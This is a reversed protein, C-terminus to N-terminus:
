FLIIIKCCRCSFVFLNKRTGKMLGNSFGDVSREWRLISERFLNQFRKVLSFKIADKTIIDLNEARGEFLLYPIVGGRFCTVQLTITLQSYFILSVIGITTLYNTTDTNRTYGMCPPLRWLIPYLRIIERCALRSV